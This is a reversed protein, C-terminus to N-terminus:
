WTPEAEEIRRDTVAGVEGNRIREAWGRARAADLENYRRKKPDDDKSAFYDFRDALLDLYEPPCASFRRGRMTPGTWDRPDAAKVEPDGHKGDLDVAPASSATGRKESLVLLIAKLTVDISALLRLTEVRPDTTTM